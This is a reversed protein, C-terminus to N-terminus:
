FKSRVCKTAASCPNQVRPRQLSFVLTKRKESVPLPKAKTSKKNMTKFNFRHTNFTVKPRSTVCYM